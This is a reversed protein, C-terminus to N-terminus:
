LEADHSSTYYETEEAGAVVGEWWSLSVRNQSGFYIWGEKFPKEWIKTAALFM